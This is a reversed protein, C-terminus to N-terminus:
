QATEGMPMCEMIEVYAGQMGFMPMGEFIKAAAEASEAKIVSYGGVENRTDALGSATLRKNKGLPAGIDIFIDKHADMWKQWVESQEKGKEPTLGKMMEDFSAIPANYLVLFKKMNKINNIIIAVKYIRGKKDYMTWEGTQKGKKFHGSRLIAGSKRFWEWYGDCVGGLMKGKAWISGDKHYVIHQRGSSTKKPM